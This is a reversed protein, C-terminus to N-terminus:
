KELKPSVNYKETPAFDYVPENIKAITCTYQMVNREKTKQLQYPIRPKQVRKMHAQKNELLCVFMVNQTEFPAVRLM